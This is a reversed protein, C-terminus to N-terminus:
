KIIVGNEAKTLFFCLNSLWEINDLSLPQSGKPIMSPIPSIIPRKINNGLDIEFITNNDISQKTLDVINLCDCYDIEDSNYLLYNIDFNIDISNILISMYNVDNDSLYNSIRSRKCELLM